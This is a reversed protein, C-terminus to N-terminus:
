RFNFPLVQQLLKLPDDPHCVWDSLFDIRDAALPIDRKLLHLCDDHERAEWTDGWSHGIARCCAGILQVTAGQRAEFAIESASMALKVAEEPAQSRLLIARYIQILPWPHGEGQKWNDQGKLYATKLEDDGRFVLWRLLLHHAYRLSTDNGTSLNGIVQALPGTVSEVAERVESPDSSPDDMLAIALYTGSQLEDKRRLDPTSLRSFGGLAEKFRRVAQVQDGFFAAHQGMSSKVQAWFRLGPVAVPQDGWHEIVAMAGEFDFRNTRAVALHLQAQCVLSPSEDFLQNSLEELEEEWASEKAGQHNSRALKVTLWFLRMLPLINKKEPKWSQLWDVAGALARLDVPASSMQRGTEQLFRDWLAAREQAEMGIGSLLNAGLSAPNKAEELLAWWEPGTLHVGQAFADWSELLKRSGISLLCTGALESQQLRQRSEQAPSAWTFAVSDVYGNLSSGNKDIVKISLNIAAARSPFALALRRLCDREVLAWPQGKNFAGRNEVLVEIQTAGTIPLLRLIWDILLGVGDMWREGPAKPISQLGIGFVGAPSDLVAQFVQDIEDHSPCETAHWQPLPALPSKEGSVVLAVFKGLGNKAHDDIFESGGEDIVVTWKDAPKLERIDSGHLDEVEPLKGKRQSLKGLPQWNFTKTVGPAKRPKIDAKPAGSRKRRNANKKRKKACNGKKLQNKIKNTAWPFKEKTKALLDSAEQSDQGSSKGIKYAKESIEKVSRGEQIHEQLADADDPYAESFSVVLPDLMRVGDEGGWSAYKRIEKLLKRKEKEAEHHDFNESSEQDSRKQPSDLSPLSSAEDEDESGDQWGPELLLEFVRRWNPLSESQSLPNTKEPDPSNTM